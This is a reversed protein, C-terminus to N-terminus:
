EFINYLYRDSLNSPKRIQRRPRTSVTDQVSMHNDSPEGGISANNEETTVSEFQDDNRRADHVKAPLEDSGDRFRHFSDRSQNNSNHRFRDFQHATGYSIAAVEIDSHQHNKAYLEESQREIEASRVKDLLESISGGKRMVKRGAERVKINSAHFQVVDAVAEMTQENPYDCLKAISAVRKVFKVDGEGPNQTISRLKQRQLLVYDRSGYFEELRYMVNSYPNTKEDPANNSSVTSELVEMLKRGAKMRFVTIQISEDIIGSFAMSAELIDRWQEFSRRDLDDEGDAPTCEPVQLSAFSMSMFMSSENNGRMTSNRAFYINEELDSPEEIWANTMISRNHATGFKANLSENRRRKM